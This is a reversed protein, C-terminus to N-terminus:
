RNGLRLTSAELHVALTNDSGVVLPLVARWRARELDRFGAMVAVFKSDPNMERRITKAEGPSLVFEDRVVVDAGLAAQDKEFLTVFDAAEFPATAKLEYVRVVVPSPRGGTTPNINAAAQFEITLM